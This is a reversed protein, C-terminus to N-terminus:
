KTTTNLHAPSYNCSCPGGTAGAYGTPCSCNSISHHDMDSERCIVGGRSSSSSSSSSAIRDTKHHMMSRWVATIMTIVMIGGFIGPWWRITSSRM